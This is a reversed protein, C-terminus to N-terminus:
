HERRKRITLVAIALAAAVMASVGSALAAMALPDGTKAMAVVSTGKSPTTKKVTTTKTSTTPAPNDQKSTGPDPQKIGPDGSGESAPPNETAPPNEQSPDNPDPVEEGPNNPEESEPPSDPDPDDPDPNTPDDPNEPDEPEPPNEPDPDDPDPVEEGPNDPEPPNEPDPDDPDPDPDPDTGPNSPRKPDVVIIQTGDESLTFASNEGVKTLTGNANVTVKLVSSICLYGSPAKTEKFTYSGGVVLDGALDLVGQADTEVVRVETTGDAFRSSDVPTVEFVAGKLPIGQSNVKLLKNDNKHNVITGAAAYATEGNSAQAIEFEGSVPLQGGEGHYGPAPTIEVFRYTGWQLNSVRLIGSQASDTESMTGDDNLVYSKGTMFGFGNRVDVFSNDPQKMQLKFVAGNLPTGDEGTKKLEVGSDEGTSVRNNLIGRNDVSGKRVNFDIATRDDQITLDFQKNEDGDEITFSAEFESEYGDNSTETLLYTGKKLCGLLLMGDGNSTIGTTTETPKSDFSEFAEDASWYKLTFEAGQILNGTQADIKPVEVSAAFKDNEIWALYASDHDSTSESLTFYKVANVAVGAPAAIEKLYYAGAPLGDKLSKYYSPLTDKVFVDESNWSCWNGQEDTQISDVVKVDADDIAEVTGNDQWLEFEVPGVPTGSFGVEEDSALVKYIKLHARFVDDVVTIVSPDEETDITADNSAEISVAGDAGITLSVDGAVAHYDPAPGSEVILYNGAPIGIICGANNDEMPVFGDANVNANGLGFGNEGWVDTKEVGTPAVWSSANGNADTKWIAFVKTADDGTGMIALEINGLTEDGDVDDVKDLKFRTAVNTITTADGQEYTPYFGAVSGPEEKVSYVYEKGDKDYKPLNKYTYTWSGDEDVGTWELHSAALEVEQPQSNEAGEVTRYLTLDPRVSSDFDPTFNAGYDKWKKAGGINIPVLKNTFTQSDVEQGDTKADFGVVALGAPLQEDSASDVEYGNPVKEVVRYTLENGDADYMPLNELTVTDEAIESSTMTYKVVDDSNMVNSDEVANGSKTVWSWNSGDTSSQLLFTLTWAGNDNTPRSDWKNSEDNWTKTLSLSTSELTNTITTEDGETKLTTEYSLTTKDDVVTIWKDSDVTLTSDYSMATEVARYQISSGEVKVPLSGWSASWNTGENLVKDATAAEFAALGKDYGEAIKNALKSVVEYANGWAGNDISAQLEVKVAAPRLGWENDGDDTWVKEVAHKGKLGNVLAPLAVTAEDADAKVSVSGTVISYGDPNENTEKVTYTWLTGDPAWRELNSITFTWEDANEDKNTWQLYAAGKEDTDQLNVTEVQGKGSVRELTLEISEPRVVSNDSGFINNYDQWQKTGTLEFLSENPKYTNKFSFTVPQNDEDDSLAIVCSATGDIGKAYTEDANADAEPQVTSEYGGIAHEVVFYQWENGNPAYIELGEFTHAFGNDEKAINEGLMKFSQVLTPKSIEESAGKKYFRYLDFTVDPYKDGEARNDEAFTKRVTLEGTDSTYFNRMLFSGTEGHTVKYVKSVVDDTTAPEGTSTGDTTEGDSSAENKVYDDMKFGGETGMLGWIAERTRYQYLNGDETFRPLTSEGAEEAGSNEGEHTMTFKWTTAGNNKGSLTTWALAGEVHYGSEPGGAPAESDGSPNGPVVTMDQWPNAMDEESAVERQQLYITIEPLDELQFGVPMNEWLKTGDVKITGGLANTFTGNEIVAWDSGTVSLPGDQITTLNSEKVNVCGAFVDKPATLQVPTYWLAEADASMSESAYYIIEEGNDDYKPLGDITCDQYYEGNKGDTYSWVYHIYGDVPDLGDSTMRYLTLHIDPRQNLVEHVYADKWVKHFVVEKSGVRKNTFTFEQTDHFHLAHVMYEGTKKSSSYERKGEPFQETLSYTAVEGNSDYKPLGNIHYETQENTSTSKDVSIVLTKGDDEVRGQLRQSENDDTFLPIKSGDTLQACAYGEDDLSFTAKGNVETLKFEAEPRDKENGTGDKWIKIATLDILGIRRNKVNLSEIEGNAAHTVQKNTVEYVHQDTAIRPMVTKTGFGESWGKNVWYPKGNEDGPVAEANDYAPYAVIGDPVKGPEAAREQNKGALGVEVLEFAEQWNWAGEITVEEYWGQEETLVAYGVVADKAYSFTNSNDICDDKAVIAVVSPLRHDNDSDDLWTKSVPIDTTPDGPGKTNVITTLPKGLESGEHAYGTPDYTRETHWGEVADELVLYSYHAGSESYEPLGEISLHWPETEQVTYTVTGLEGEDLEFTQLNKDIEGNLTFGGGTSLLKHDRYLKVTITDGPDEVRKGDVYWEKVVHHCTENKFVNKITGDDEVVSEFTVPNETGLADTLTLNFEGDEGLVMETGDQTVSYEVWRYELENGQSDYKPFSKTVTQTLSESIWGDLKVEANDNNKVDQWADDESGVIRSQAKFTCVIDNLQSQFTAAVWTKTFSSSVTGTLRNTVTGGNYILRDGDSRTWGDGAVYTKDGAANYYNPATDTITETGDANVQVTGFVTEYNALNAEERLAYVYPYGDPDYKPLMLKGEGNGYKAELLAGLDDTSVANEEAPIEEVIGGEVTGNAVDKGDTVSDPSDTASEQSQGSVVASPQNLTSDNSVEVATMKPPISITAYELTGDKSTLQVQSAGSYGNEQNSSYRWLTFNVRPRQEANNDLWVKTADFTTTGLRRITMSGGSFAATTDSGHNPSGQNDYAVQYYDDTYNSGEEPVFGDYTISYVIPYGDRTYEPLQGVLAGKEKDWDLYGATILNGVTVTEDKPLVSEGNATAHFRFNTGESTFFAELDDDGIKAEIGFWVDTVKQLYQTGEPISEGYTDEMRMYGAYTTDFGNNDSIQWLIEFAETNVVPNGDEDVESTTTKKTLATPLGSASAVYENTNPETPNINAWSPMEKLGLKHLNDKLSVYSTISGDASKLAFCLQYGSMVEDVGPRDSSMNDCWITTLTSTGTTNSLALSDNEGPDSPEEGEEPKQDDTSEEPDTTEPEQVFASATKLTEVASELSPTTITAKFDNDEILTWEHSGADEELVSALMSADFAAKMSVVKGHAPTSEGGDTASRSALTSGTVEETTTSTTDDSGETSETDGGETAIEDEEGDTTTTGNQDVPEDTAGGVEVTGTTGGEGEVVSGGQDGGPTTQSENTTDTANQENSPTSPTAPPNPEDEVATEFASELLTITLTNNAVKAKAVQKTSEKPDVLTIESTTDSLKVAGDDTKASFSITDGAVLVEGEPAKLDVTLEVNAPVTEGETSALARFADETLSMGRVGEANLSLDPTVKLDDQVLKAVHEADSWVVPTTRVAEPTTGNEDAAYAITGGSVVLGQLMLLTAVLFSVFANAFSGRTFVSGSLASSGRGNGREQSAVNRGAGSAAKNWM